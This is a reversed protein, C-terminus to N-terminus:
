MQSNLFRVKILENAAVNKFFMNEKCNEAHPCILIKMKNLFKVGTRVHLPIIGVILLAIRTVNADMKKTQSVRRRRECINLYCEYCRNTVM